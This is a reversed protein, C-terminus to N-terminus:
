DLGLFCRELQNSLKVGTFEDIWCWKLKQDSLEATKHLNNFTAFDAFRCKEQWIDPSPPNFRNPLSSSPSPWTTPPNPSVPLSVTINQFIRTFIIIIMIINIIIISIIITSIIIIIMVPGVWSFFSSSTLWQGGWWSLQHLVLLFVLHWSSLHPVSCFPLLSLLEQGAGWDKWGFSGQDSSLTQVTGITCAAAPACNCFFLIISTM